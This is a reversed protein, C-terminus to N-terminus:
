LFYQGLHSASTVAYNSNGLEQLLCPRQSLCGTVKNLPTLPHKTSAAPKQSLRSMCDIRFSAILKYGTRFVAQTARRGEELYGEGRHSGTVTRGSRALMWGSGKSDEAWRTGAARLTASSLSPIRWPVWAPERAM